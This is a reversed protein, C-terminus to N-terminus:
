VFSEEVSRNEREAEGTCRTYYQTYRRLVSRSNTAEHFLRRELIEKFADLDPREASTFFSFLWLSACSCHFVLILMLAGFGNNHNPLRLVNSLTNLTSM